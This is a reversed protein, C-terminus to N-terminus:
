CIGDSKAKFVLVARDCYHIQATVMVIVDATLGRFGMQESMVESMSITRRYASPIVLDSSAM